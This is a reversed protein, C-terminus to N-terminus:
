WSVISQWFSDFWKSISAFVFVIYLHVYNLWDNGIFISTFGISDFLRLCFWLNETGFHFLVCWNINNFRAFSFSLALFSVVFTVFIDRVRVLLHYKWNNKSRETFYLFFLRFLSWFRMGHLIYDSDLSRVSRIFFTLMFISFSIVCECIIRWYLITLKAKTMTTTTSKSLRKRWRWQENTTPACVISDKVTRAIRKYAWENVMQTYMKLWNEHINRLLNSDTQPKSQKKTM